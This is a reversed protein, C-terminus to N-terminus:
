GMEATLVGYFRLRDFLGWTAARQEETLADALKAWWGFWDRYESHMMRPLRAAPFLKKLRVAFEEPSLSTVSELEYESSTGLFLFPNITERAQRELEEARAEAAASDAYAAVPRGLVRGEQEPEVPAFNWGDGYVEMWGRRVVVFVEKPTKKGRAV